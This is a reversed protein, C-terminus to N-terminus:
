IAPLEMHREYFDVVLSPAVSKMTEYPILADEPNLGDAGPYWEVQCMWEIAYKKDNLLLRIKKPRHTEFNGQVTLGAMMLAKQRDQLKREKEEDDARM